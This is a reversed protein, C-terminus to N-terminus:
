RRDQSQPLGNKAGPCYADTSYGYCSHPRNDIVVRLGAGLVIVLLTVITLSAM